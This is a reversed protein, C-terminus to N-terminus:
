TRRLSTAPIWAVSAAATGPTQRPAGGTLVVGRRESAARLRSRMM